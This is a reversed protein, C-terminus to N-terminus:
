CKNQGPTPAPTNKYVTDRATDMTTMGVTM